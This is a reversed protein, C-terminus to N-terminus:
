PAGRCLSLAGLRLRELILAAVLRPSAHVATASRAEVRDPLAKSRSPDLRPEALGVHFRERPDRRKPLSDIMVVYTDLNIKTGKAEELRQMKYRSLGPYPEFTLLDTWPTLDLDSV